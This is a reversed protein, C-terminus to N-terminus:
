LILLKYFDTLLFYLINLENEREWERRYRNHYWFRVRIIGRKKKGIIAERSKVEVKLGEKGTDVVGNTCM